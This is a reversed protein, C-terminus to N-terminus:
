QPRFNQFADSVNGYLMRLQEAYPAFYYYYAAGGIGLAAAWWLLSGVRSWWINRRLKHVVHNTDEIVKSQHRVLEKLEEIETNM